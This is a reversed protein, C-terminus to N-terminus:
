WSNGFESPPGLRDWQGGAGNGPWDFRESYANMKKIYRPFKGPIRSARAACESQTEYKVSEEDSLRNIFWRVLWGMDHFHDAEHGLVDKVRSMVSHTSNDYRSDWQGNLWVPDNLDALKTRIKANLSCDMSFGDKCSGQCNCSGSANMVTIGRGSANPNGGTIQNIPIFEVANGPNIDLSTAVLGYPDKLSIPSGSELRLVNLDGANYRMPDMSVFRGLAPQYYRKRFYMAGTEADMERGQFTLANGKASVSATVDDTTFWKGDTGAATYVTPEGYPTYAYCEVIAGTRNTLAEVNYNNGQLYWVTDSTTGWSRVMAIPEDIYNGYVFTKTTDTGSGTVKQYVCQWGEYVSITKISGVQKM